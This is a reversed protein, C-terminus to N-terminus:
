RFAIENRILKGSSCKGCDKCRFRLSKGHANINWGQRVMNTSRCTPCGTHGDAANMDPHNKMWPRLKLYVAKLLSVDQSNYAKMTAWAKPDGALCKEWLEFGEHKMKRGVGLLEGLDNLKNSNLDFRNRAIALTDIVKHPPPPTLGHKLFDSNARKDDFRTGNHAIVIDAKSILAHLRKILLRNCDPNSKYGPFDPLALVGLREENKPVEGLWEWAFCFIQRHKIIKIVNQEWKGWTYGINPSTEVDFLFVKRATEPRAAKTKNAM